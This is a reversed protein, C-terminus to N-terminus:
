AWEDVQEETPKATDKMLIIGLQKQYNRIETCINRRLVVEAHPKSVIGEGERVTPGHFCYEGKELIIESLRDYDVHLDCLLMVTLLHSTHWNSRQTIQDIYIDWYYKFAKSKGKPPRPLKSVPSTPNEDLVEETKVKKPRGAM